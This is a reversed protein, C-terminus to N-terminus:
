ISFQPVTERHYQSIPRDRSSRDHGDLLPNTLKLWRHPRQKHSDSKTANRGMALFRGMITRSLENHLEGRCQRTAVAEEVSKVWSAMSSQQMQQLILLPKDFLYARTYPICYKDKNYMNYLERIRRKLATILKAEMSSADKGHIVANRANWLMKCYQWNTKIISKAWIEAVRSTPSSQRTQKDKPITVHAKWKKSSYGQLFLFWGIHRSQEQAGTEKTTTASTLPFDTPTKSAVGDM